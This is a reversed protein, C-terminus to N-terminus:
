ITLYIKKFEDLKKKNKDNSAEQGEGYIWDITEQLLQMM